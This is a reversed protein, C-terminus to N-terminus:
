LAGGDHCDRSYLGDLAPHARAVDSLVLTPPARSIEPAERMRERVRWAQQSISRM